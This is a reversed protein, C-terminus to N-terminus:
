SDARTSQAPRIVPSEPKGKEKSVSAGGCVAAKLTPLPGPEQGLLQPPVASEAEMRIELDRCKMKQIDPPAQAQKAAWSDLAARLTQLSVPKSMYADMGESMYRQRAGAVADATLAIIFPHCKPQEEVPLTKEWTRIAKTAQSGSWTPMQGDMLIIAYMGPCKVVEEYAEKGDSVTKHAWQLRDLMRSLVKQTPLNDEALLISTKAKVQMIAAALTEATTQETGSGGPRPIASVIPIDFFFTSGAGLKSVCGVAGNMLATLKACIFLGLGSGGYKRWTGGAQTYRRFLTPLTAPDIGMGTDRVLVRMWDAAGGSCIRFPSDMEKKAQEKEKTEQRQQPQQQQGSGLHLQQLQKPEPPNQQKEGGDGSSSSSSTDGSGSGTGRSVTGVSMVSGVTGFNSVNAFSSRPSQPSRAKNPPPCTPRFIVSGWEEEYETATFALEGDAATGDIAHKVKTGPLPPDEGARIRKVQVTITGGVTFKVANSIMNLIIQNLRGPDHVVYKPLSPDFIIDVRTDNETAKLSEFTIADRVTSELEFATKELRLEGAEVKGFDLIDNIISLLLESAQRITRVHGQPVDDLNLEALLQTSGLIATLPTRIQHSMMALFETKHKSIMASREEAEQCRTTDVTVCFLGVVRGNEIKPTMYEDYWAQSVTGEKNRLQKRNAVAMPMGTELCQLKLKTLATVVEPPAVFSSYAEGVFDTRKFGLPPNFVRTCVLNSNFEWITIPATEFAQQLLEPTWGCRVPDDDGSTSKGDDLSSAPSMGRGADRLASPTESRGIIRVCGYDQDLESIADEM